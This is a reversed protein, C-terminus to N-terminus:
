KGFNAFDAFADQKPQGMAPNMGMGTGMSGPMGMAATSMGMNMNMGMMGQNVPMGGMPPMSMANGTMGPQMGMNMGGMMINTPPRVMTTAPQMGLNMGAFGQTMMNVPTPVGIALYLFILFLILASM